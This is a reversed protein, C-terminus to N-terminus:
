SRSKNQSMMCMSKKRTYPLLFYDDSHSTVDNFVQKEIPIIHLLIECGVQRSHLVTCICLTGEHTILNAIGVTLQTIKMSNTVECDATRKRGM